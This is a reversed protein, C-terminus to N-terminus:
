TGGVRTIGYWGDNLTWGDDSSERLDIDGINTVLFHKTVTYNFAAGSKGHMILPPGMPAGSAFFQVELTRDNGGTGGMVGELHIVVSVIGYQSAGTIAINASAGTTAVYDVSFTATDFPIVTKAVHAAIVVPALNELQACCGMYSLVANRHTQATIARVNNDGFDTLLEDKSRTQDAM